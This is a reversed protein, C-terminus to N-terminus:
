MGEERKGGNDVIELLAKGKGTLVAGKAGIKLEILGDREMQKMMRRIMGEGLNRNERKAMEALARRGIGNNERIKKMIWIIIERKENESLDSAASLMGSIMNSPLDEIAIRATEDKVSVLYEVLNVLERVNGPWGYSLLYDLTDEEFFDYVNTIRAGTYRKLYFGLLILIDEKRERLPPILLPLVSLRYYLDQRFSGEKVKKWLDKNTAAIVRVDVPIVKLGGVRIIRKDQLVRLLRVQFDPPADGIEDLFITGGGAKEFLGPKGGKKAGTFAGEEYGFLESELLNSPLAAFNVPVFPGDRRRSANHIAQAFLEKGTGSEGYILVTSDCSAIKKATEKAKKIARSEGVIDEFEYVATLGDKRM